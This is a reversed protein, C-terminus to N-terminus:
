WVKYIFIKKQWLGVQSLFRSAHVQPMSIYRSVANGNVTWLPPPYSALINQRLRYLGKPCDIQGIYHSLPAIIKGTVFPRISLSYKTPLRQFHDSVKSSIVFPFKLIHYTHGYSVKSLCLSIRPFITHLLIPGIRFTVWITSDSWQKYEYFYIYWRSYVPIHLPPM